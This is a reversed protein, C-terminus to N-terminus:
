LFLVVNPVLNNHLLRYLTLGQLLSVLLTDLIACLLHLKQFSVFVLSICNFVSVCEDIVQTGNELPTFLGIMQKLECSTVSHAGIAELIGILSESLSHSVNM